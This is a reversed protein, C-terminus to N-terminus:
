YLSKFDANNLICNTSFYLLRLPTFSFTLVILFIGLTLLIKRLLGWVSESVLEM